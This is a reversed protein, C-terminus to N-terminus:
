TEDLTNRISRLMQDMSFPKKIIDKIGAMLMASKSEPETYGSAIMFKIDPNINKMRKFADFGNLKPLGFDSLVLHIEHQHQLYQKVGEEGDEAILLTYGKARLIGKILGRLLEEDEILLITETGGPIEGSSQEKTEEVNIFHLPLPFYIHFITGKGPESKVEIFGNHSEVIGFVLSLGLGTGKGIGKTTFFPEFIRRRTVDDMGMGTDSVCLEIYEKAIAKTFKKQVLSGQITFTSIDIVGGDPMADRANVCLNLIVQHIQNSDAIFSPLQKDLNLSVTITKPFTEGLLKSVEVVIDNLRVSEVIIDTKRAFTLLQKVLAAGRMGAKNIADTNKKITASDPPLRELLSSYGIMIGLINNFDHAIGSALTGLSELKQAQQLQAELSKRKEEAIKRDTIDSAVAVLALAGGVKDRILSTSLSIPFESGDKRRSLLEGSWGGQLTSHHIETILTSTMNASQIININKGIIRGEDYGYTKLFAKNVFLVNNEMDTISVCEGISKLAHALTTLYKEARKHETTDRINCQIVKQNGERYINSVFEVEIMRGDITEMPLDEYRVSVKHHLEDFREKNLKIDRVFGVDWICKGLLENHSFGLLNILFPNVDIIVGNEANLIIIGDRASEFLRRYRIESSLLREEVRKRETIDMVMAYCELLNESISAEVRVWCPITGEQKLEVECIEKKKSEFVKLLFTNFTSLSDASIFIEFRRKLLETQEVGLLTAGTLNANHITGDYTLTFYGVPAFDYLDTYQQLALEKEARSAILEENQMEFEIQHVQLEHVLRQTEEESAPVVTAKNKREQLKAEARKRLENANMLIVPKKKM